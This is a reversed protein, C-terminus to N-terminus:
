RAVFASDAIVAELLDRLGGGNQSSSANIRRIMPEDAAIMPRGLAYTLLRSTLGTTFVDSWQQKLHRQLDQAGAVETGNPLTTRSDVPHRVFKGKRDGPRRIAERRKGVADFAELAVGWPDIGRHCDACAENELHAQLQQKVTLSAFDANVNDLNPVNPPPPSPPDHLLRDRIWVGRKIPHSDEGTSNALLVAGQTLLGGRRDQDALSVREFDAGRPTRDAPLGYHVALDRNLMAFDSDLFQDLPQNERLMESFYSETESVMMAKLRLDFGPYFTPNIAVRDVGDLDLWQRAFQGIFRESYPHQLMRRLQTVRVQPDRLQDQRALEFLTEDPMSSWLWYSMRSAIEFSDLADQQPESSPEVLYLFEPSILVSAYTERLAAEFSAATSRLTRFLRLYRQLAADTPDRRFALPLFSELGAQADALEDGTRQPLLRLHHAPPWSAFVPARFEIADVVITPFDAQLKREPKKAKKGKARRPPKPAPKGDDFANELWILMGPYKSQTRSQIPFEELRGRFELVTPERQVVDRVGVIKAPAQTDARFGLKVRLSPHPADEPGEVHVTARIVFEGADPFEKIRAVFVGDRGLLKTWVGRGKDKVSETAQHEHVTPESTEVMAYRLARRAAQLYLELQLDSMRLSAGQNTFGDPSREDPPLNALFDHDLQLLDRMTYQYELRNLRRIVRSSSRRAAAVAELHSEISRVLLQREERGLTLEADAPPMDGRKIANLADHWTEAARANELDASLQTLQVDGQPERDGHCGSCTQRLVDRAAQPIEAGVDAAIMGSCVVVAAAAAAFRFRAFCVFCM